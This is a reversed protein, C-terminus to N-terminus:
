KKLVTRHPVRRMCIANAISVSLRDCQPQLASLLFGSICFCFCFFTNMVAMVALWLSFTPNGSTSALLLLVNTLTAHNRRPNGHFRTARISAPRWVRGRIYFHIIRQELDTRTSVFTTMKFCFKKFENRWWDWDANEAIRRSRQVSTTSVDLQRRASPTSVATSVSCRRQLWAAHGGRLLKWCRTVPTCAFKKLRVFISQNARWSSVTTGEIQSM